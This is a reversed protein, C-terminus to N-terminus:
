GSRAGARGLDVNLRIGGGASLIPGGANVSPDLDDIRRSRRASIISSTSTLARSSAGGPAVCQDVRDIASAIPM